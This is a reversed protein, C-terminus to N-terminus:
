EKAREIVDQLGHKFAAESFAEASRAVKEEDFSLTNFRQIAAVLSETTQEDFFIGNVGEKVFDLSGGKQLAIVPTGAALAEVPAIGFPEISPFLFAKSARILPVIEAVGRYRPLFEISPSGGALKVLREHEPGDGVVYLHEGAKLVADIALDIRKWSVQRGYVIFGNRKQRPEESIAQIVEVAVNPWVVVSERGYHKKIEARIYSSNAVVVDPRQAAAYDAMRLPEVLLKLVFRALPNLFGFGPNAMYDDYLTWYYQTPAHMYSVHLADDRTKVAKAEAGTISIVLDYDSLDLRSFYWQRLFPTLRRSWAPLVNLWGVRVDANGLWATKRPRYQSTYIPADPFLEHVAKIVREGGGFGETLWDVVLAVKKPKKM